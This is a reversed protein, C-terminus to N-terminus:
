WHWFWTAIGEASVEHTLRLGYPVTDQGTDITETYQSYEDAFELSWSENTTKVNETYNTNEGVEVAFQLTITFATTLTWNNTSTSFQPPSVVKPYARVIDVAGCQVLFM